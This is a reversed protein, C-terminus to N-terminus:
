ESQWDLAGSQKEDPICETNQPLGTISMLTLQGNKAACEM